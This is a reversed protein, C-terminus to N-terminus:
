LDCDCAIGWLWHCETTCTGSFIGYSCAAGPSTCGIGKKTKGDCVKSAKGTICDGPSALPQPDEAIEDPETEVPEQEASLWLRTEGVTALKTSVLTIMAEYRLRIYVMRFGQEHPALAEKSVREIADINLIDKKRIIAGDRRASPDPCFMFHGKEESHALMGRLIISEEAIRDPASKLAKNLSLMSPENTQSCSQDNFTPVPVPREGIRVRQNRYMRLKAGFRIKVECIAYGIEHSKLGRASIKRVDGLVDKKKIEAQFVNTSPNLNLLIKKAKSSRILQGRFVVFEDLKLKSSKSKRKKSM